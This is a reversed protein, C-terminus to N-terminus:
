SIRVTVVNSSRGAGSDIVRFLNPGAQGTEIYTSFQGGDVSASTPFDVWAAGEKRQVQLSTGPPARYTGTLSVREYTGAQGPTATLRIGQQQQPQGTETPPTSGTPAAPTTPQESPGSKTPKGPTPFSVGGTEPAQTAGLGAVDAAKIAVVGVIGGILLAVVVLVLGGILLQKRWDSEDDM